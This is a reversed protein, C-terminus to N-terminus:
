KLAFAYDSKKFLVHLRSLLRDFWLVPMRWDKLFGSDPGGEEFEFKFDRSSVFEKNQIKRELAETNVPVILLNCSATLM